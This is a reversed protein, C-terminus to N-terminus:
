TPQHYQMRLGGERKGQRGKVLEDGDHLKFGSAIFNVSSDVKVRCPVVVGGPQLSSTYMIYLERVPNVKEDSM